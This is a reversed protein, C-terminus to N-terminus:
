QAKWLKELTGYGLHSQSSLSQLCFETFLGEGHGSMDTGMESRSEAVKRAAEEEEAVAAIRRIFCNM